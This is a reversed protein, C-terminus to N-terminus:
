KSVAEKAGAEVSGPRAAALHLGNERPHRQIKPLRSMPVKAMLKLMMVPQNGKVTIMM